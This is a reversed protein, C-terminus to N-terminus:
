KKDMNILVTNAIGINIIIQKQIEVDLLKMYDPNIMFNKYLIISMDKNTSYPSQIFKELLWKFHLPALIQKKILFNLLEINNSGIIINVLRLFVKFNLLQDLQKSELKEILQSTKNCSLLFFLPDLDYQFIDVKGTIISNYKSEESSGYGSWLIDLSELSSEYNHQEINITM